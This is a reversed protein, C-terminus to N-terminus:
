KLGDALPGLSLAPLFNLLALILATGTALAIFTAGQARLTGAAAVTFLTVISHRRRPDDAEVAL